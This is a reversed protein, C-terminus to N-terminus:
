RREDWSMKGCVIKKEREQTNVMDSKLNKRGVMVPGCMETASDVLKM